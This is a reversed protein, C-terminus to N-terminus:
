YKSREERKFKLKNLRLCRVDTREGETMPLRTHYHSLSSETLRNVQVNIDWQLKKKKQWKNM